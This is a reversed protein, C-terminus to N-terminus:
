IGELRTAACGSFQCIDPCQMSNAIGLIPSEMSLAPTWSPPETEAQVYCPAIVDNVVWNALPYSPYVRWCRQWSPPESEAKHQGRTLIRTLDFPELRPYTDLYVIRSSALILPKNGRLKSSLNQRRKIKRKLFNNIM